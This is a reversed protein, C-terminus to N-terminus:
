ASEVLATLSGGVSVLSVDEEMRRRKDAHESDQHEAVHHLAM